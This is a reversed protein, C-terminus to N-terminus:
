RPRYGDQVTQSFPHESVLEHPSERMGDGWASRCVLHCFRNEYDEFNEIFLSRELIRERVRKYVMKFFLHGKSMKAYSPWIIFSDGFFPFETM